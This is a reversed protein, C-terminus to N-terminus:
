HVILVALFLNSRARDLNDCRGSDGDGRLSMVAAPPIRTQTRCCCHVRSVYPLTLRGARTSANDDSVQDIERRHHLSAIHRDTQRLLASVARGQSAPLVGRAHGGRASSLCHMTQLLVAVAAACRRTSSVRDRSPADVRASPCIVAATLLSANTSVTLKRRVERRRGLTTQYCADM